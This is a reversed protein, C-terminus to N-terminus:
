AKKAFPVAVGCMVHSGHETEMEASVCLVELDEEEEGIPLIDKFSLRSGTRGGVGRGRSEPLSSRRTWRWGWPGM